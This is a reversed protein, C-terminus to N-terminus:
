FLKGRAGGGAGTATAGWGGALRIIFKNHALALRAAAPLLSRRPCACAVYAARRRASWEGATSQKGATSRIASQSNLQM